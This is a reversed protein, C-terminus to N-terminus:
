QEAWEWEVKDDGGFGYQAICAVGEDELRPELRVGLGQGADDWASWGGWLEIAGAGQRRASAVVAAFPVLEPRHVYNLMLRERPLEPPEPEHFTYTIFPRDTSGAPAPLLLGFSPSPRATPQLMYRLSHIDFLGRSPLIAVRTRDARGVSGLASVMYEAVKPALDNVQERSLWEWGEEEERGEVGDGYEVTFFRMYREREAVWGPLSGPGEGQRCRDYFDKGIGSYLVSFRADRFGEVAPPAGWESPFPPLHEAAALVYHLLRMMHTTYGRRRHALPCHVGAVGYSITHAPAVAGPPLFIAPRRYTEVYSLFESEDDRHVLAFADFGWGAERDAVWPQEHGNIVADAALWAREDASGPTTWSAANKRLAAARQADSLHLLTYAGPNALTSTAAM